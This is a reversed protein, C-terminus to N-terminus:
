ACRRLRAGLALGAERSVRIGFRERLAARAAHFGCMGHVGAGPPTAASCQYLGAMPLAYPSRGPILTGIVRRLDLVGAGVDGGVLNPNLRELDAPSLASRALVCDRFGPAFREVQREIRATADASSGAPVHCYAWATHRGEPARTDDFRSPQALLVFPREHAVGEWAARESAAIEEFRGGLHVTAARGTSPDAWPIPESLAWDLKFAGPGYRYAALRRRLAPPAAEGLVRLLPGPGLDFLTARAPPLDFLSGIRRETELHGGLERLLAVLAGALAGAGGRPIPWGVSHGAVGLTLGVGASPRRELPLISHAGLGAWLAAARHGGFARRAVTRASALGHWAWRWLRVAAAGPPALVAHRDVPWADLFPGFLRVWSEGDDGLGEATGELSRGLLVSSEGDLPHAACAHSEIWELGHRALPLAEFLPSAAALPHVASCVDHRFGPLTLEETSLGGGARAAAEIVRVGLGHSALTIAAALGNPGSGVVLADLTL